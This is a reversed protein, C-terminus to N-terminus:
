SQQQHFTSCANIRACYSAYIGDNYKNEKWELEQGNKGVRKRGGVTNATGCTITITEHVEKYHTNFRDFKIVGFQSKTADPQTIIQLNQVAMNDGGPYQYENEMKKIMDQQNRGCYDKDAGGSNTAGIKITTNVQELMLSKHMKLINRKEEETINIKM